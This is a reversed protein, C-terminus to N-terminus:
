TKRETRNLIELYPFMIQIKQIDISTKQNTVNYAMKIKKM